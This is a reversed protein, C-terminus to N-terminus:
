DALYQIDDRSFFRTTKVKQIIHNQGPHAQKHHALLRNQDPHIFSQCCECRWISEVGEFTLEMEEFDVRVRIEDLGEGEVMTLLIHEDTLKAKELSKGDPGIIKEIRAIGFPTKLVLGPHLAKIVHPFEEELYEVITPHHGGWWNTEDTLMEISKEPCLKLLAIFYRDDLIGALHRDILVQYAGDWDNEILDKLYAHMREQNIEFWAARLMAQKVIPLSKDPIEDFVVGMYKSILPERYHSWEFIAWDPDEFQALINVIDDDVMLLYTLADDVSLREAEMMALMIDVLEQDNRRVLTKLCASMVVPDDVQALLIRASDLYISEVQSVMHLYEILDPDNLRYKELMTKVIQDNFLNKLFFSKFSSRIDKNQMWRISGVLTKVDKLHRLHKAAESVAQDRQESDGLSGYICAKEIAAKFQEEHGVKPQGLEDLREEASCLDVLHPQIGDPPETLRETWPNMVYFYVEYHSAPLSIGKLIFEGKAENPIEREIPTQWPQWMSKIMVRRNKLPKEAEWTLRWSTEDVPTMSVAQIALQPSLTLVPYRIPESNWNHQYVLEFQMLDDVEQITTSFPRLPVRLRDQIFGVPSLKGEMRLQDSNGVEVLQCKLKPLKEELSHM